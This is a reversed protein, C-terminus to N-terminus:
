CLPNWVKWSRARWRRWGVPSRSGLARRAELETLKLMRDVLEQIRRTEGQINSLFVPASIPRM